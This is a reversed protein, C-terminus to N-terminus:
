FENVYRGRGPERRESSAGAAPAPEDDWRITERVWAFMSSHLRPREAAFVLFATRGSPLGVAFTRFTPGIPTRSVTQWMFTAEVARFRGLYATQRYLFTLGAGTPPRLIRAAREALDDGVPLEGADFYRISVFGPSRSRKDSLLTGYKDSRSEQWWGPYSFAVTGDRFDADLWAPPERTTTVAAENSASGGACGALAFLVALLSIRGM